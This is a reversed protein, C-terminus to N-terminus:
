VGKARESEGRGVKHERQRLVIRPRMKSDLFMACTSTSLPLLAHSGGASRARARSASARARPRETCELPARRAHLLPAAPCTKPCRHAQPAACAM